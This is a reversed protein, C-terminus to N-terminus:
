FEDCVLWLCCRNVVCALLCARVLSVWLDDDSCLFKLFMFAGLRVLGSWVLGSRLRM